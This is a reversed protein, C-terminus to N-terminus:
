EPVATFEVEAGWPADAGPQLYDNFSGESGRLKWNLFAIAFHNVAVHAENWNWNDVPSCGDRLADEADPFDMNAIVYELDLDCMNTFSYHGCRPFRLFWKPPQMDLFANWMFIEFPLTQDLDGGMIMTPFSWDTLLMKMFPEVMKAAPALPVIAKVRPDELAPPFAAFGGFSHGVVGVRFTDVLRYFDDTADRSKAEMKNILFAIDLPRRQASPLLGADDYGTVLIDYLTNQEHDASAVVYGHSALQITHFYSQFRIGYAGHSFVVLPFPGLDDRIPADFAANTEAAAIDVGDFVYKAWDPADSKLDYAHRPSDRYEESTPYWIETRLTRPSGDENTLDPIVWSVTRVGVPFPGWEKPDPASEPGAACFEGVCQPVQPPAVWDGTDADLTTMESVEVAVEAAIEPTVDVQSDDLSDADQITTEGPESDSDSCATVLLVSILLLLLAVSPLSARRLHAISM